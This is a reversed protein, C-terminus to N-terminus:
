DDNGGFNDYYEVAKLHQKICMASVVDRQALKLHVRKYSGADFLQVERRKDGCLLLTSADCSYLGINFIQRVQHGMMHIKPTKKQRNVFAGIARYQQYKIKKDLWPAHVSIAIYSYKACLEQLNELGRESHWCPMPSWGVAKAMATRVEEIKSLPWIGDLDMEIYNKIRYNRVFRCYDEIYSSYNVEKGGYLFSYVGSDLMGIKAQRLFLGAKSEGKNGRIGYYSILLYPVQRLLEARHDYMLAEAGALFLKM